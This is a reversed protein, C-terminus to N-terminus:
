SSCWGGIVWGESNGDTFKVAMVKNWKEHHEDIWEEAEEASEFVQTGPFEVGPEASAWTGSYSHGSEYAMEATANIVLERIEGKSLDGNITRVCFEAGM